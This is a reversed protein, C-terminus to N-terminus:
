RDRGGSGEAPQAVAAASAAAREARDWRREAGRRGWVGRIICPGSRRECRAQASLAAAPGAPGAAEAGSPSPAAAHPPLYSGLASAAPEATVPSGRARGATQPPWRRPRASSDGLLGATGTPPPAHRPSERLGPCACISPWRKHLKTRGPCLTLQGGLESPTYPLHRCETNRLTQRTPHTAILFLWGHVPLLVFATLPLTLQLRMKKLFVHLGLAFGQM